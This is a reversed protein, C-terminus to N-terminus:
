RQASRPLTFDLTMVDDESSEGINCFSHDQQVDDDDDDNDDSIELIDTSSGAADAAVREVSTRTRTRRAPPRTQPKRKKRPRLAGFLDSDEDLRPDDERRGKPGLM